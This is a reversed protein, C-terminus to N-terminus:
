TRRAPPRCSSRRTSCASDSCRDRSVRLSASAGLTATMQRYWVPLPQWSESRARLGRLKVLGRALGVTRLVGVLVLMGALWPEWAWQAVAGGPSNLTSEWLTVTQSREFMPLLLSVAPAGHWTRLRLRPDTVALLALTAATVTM